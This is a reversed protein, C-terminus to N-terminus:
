EDAWSAQTTTEYRLKFFVLMPYKSFLLFNTKSLTVIWSLWPRYIIDWPIDGQMMKLHPRNTAVYAMFEYKSYM